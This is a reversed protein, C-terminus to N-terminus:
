GSLHSPELTFVGAGAGVHIDPEIQESHSEGGEECVTPTHVHREVVLQQVMPMTCPPTYQEIMSVTAPRDAVARNASFPPPVQAPTLLVV